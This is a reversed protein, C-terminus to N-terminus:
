SISGRPPPLKGPLRIRGLATAFDPAWRSFEKAVAAVAAPVPIDYLFAVTEFAGAGGPDIGAKGCPTDQPPLKVQEPPTGLTKLVRTTRQFAQRSQADGGGAVADLVVNGVVARREARESSRTWPGSTRPWTSPSRETACASRSAAAPMGSGWGSSRRAGPPEPRTDDYELDVGTLGKFHRAVDSASYRVFDEDVEALDDSGGCASLALLVVTLLAVLLRLQM